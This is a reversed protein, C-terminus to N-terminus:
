CRVSPGTAPSMCRIGPKEAHQSSLSGSDLCLELSWDLLYSSAMLQMKVLELTLLAASGVCYCFSLVKLAQKVAGADKSFALVLAIAHVTARFDEFETVHRAGLFATASLLVRNLALEAASVLATGRLRLATFM